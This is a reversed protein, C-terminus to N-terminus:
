RACVADAQRHLHQRRRGAGGVRAAEGGASVAIVPLDVLGLRSRVQEIVHAGDIVPLYVDIILADFPAQGAAGARRPRQGRDRGRVVRRGPAPRGALGAEIFAAVHPNDEVVLVRVVRAVVRPDRARVREIV